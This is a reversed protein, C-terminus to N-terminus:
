LIAQGTYDDTSGCDEVLLYAVNSSSAALTWTQAVGGQTGTWCLAATVDSGTTNTLITQVSLAANATSAQLNNVRIQDKYITGSVTNKRIRYLAYSDSAAGHLGWLTVRYARGNKFTISGTTILSTETSSFTVNVSLTKQAVFGRGQSKGYVSLDGDLAFGSSTLKATSRASGPPADRVHLEISSGAAATDAGYGNIYAVGNGSLENAYLNFVSGAYGPVHGQLFLGTEQASGNVRPASLAVSPIEYTVPGDSGYAIATSLEAPAAENASGSYFEISGTEPNTNGPSIVVRQGTAATRLVGGTIVAGKITKGNIADADLMSANIVGATLLALRASNVELHDGTISAFKIERGTLTQAVVKEAVISDAALEPTGISGALIVGAIVVTRIEANDFYVQGASSQYTELWVTANVTNAPARVQGSIRTWGTAPTSPTQIVGFGLTAGTGDLWRLYFKAASGTWDASTKYDVALFFREGPLAPLTMVLLSRTTQQPAAANVRLCRVSANGPGDTSWDDNEEILSDTYPGEFSADPLLNGTGIAMRDADVAGVAIKNRTVAAEALALEDVIGDLVEDAVVAAPGVPGTQGSPASATGSTSRAVLGVYLPQDAPVLVTGGQPSELTARLTAPTPEFGNVAAGHIELRAWDLPVAAADTFAGAWSVAIGGLVPAVAPAVPTPPPPGNVAIVGSTGDPQQGVIARLSGDEDFVEVAGNEISSYALRATRTTRALQRELVAVRAALRAIDSSM